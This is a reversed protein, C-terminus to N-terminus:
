GLAGNVYEMIEDLVEDLPRDVNVTHTGKHEPLDNLKDFLDKTFFHNERDGVRSRLVEFPAELHIFVCDGLADAVLQMFAPKVFVYSGVLPKKGKLEKAHERFFAEVEEDPVLEGKRNHEKFSDPIVDDIDVFERGLREAVLKGITTKGCGPLGYFVIHMIPVNPNSGLDAPIEMARYWKETM